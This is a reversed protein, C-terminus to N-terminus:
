HIGAVYASVAKIEDTTMKSAIDRMMSNPDNSREGTAFLKLQAEIYTAYQGSLAPWKAAPVGLGTPGHCAMCAPLGSEKNGARYITQGTEVLEKPAAGPTISKSSFYASLDVMDQESLAAVMPAMVANKRVGSKFDQLQKILYAKGQGAIKPFANSPSNGDVGHCAACSASLAKGSAIDGAAVPSTISTTLVMMSMMLLKKM